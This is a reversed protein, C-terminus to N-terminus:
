TTAEFQTPFITRISVNTQVLRHWEIKMEPSDHTNTLNDRNSRGLMTNEETQIAIATDSLLRAQIGM